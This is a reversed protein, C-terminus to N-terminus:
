FYPEGGDVRRCDSVRCNVLYVIGEPIRPQSRNVDAAAVCAVFFLCRALSKRPVVNTTIRVRDVFLVPRGHQDPALTYVFGKRLYEVDNTMAGDLKLPQFAKSPGFLEQRLTWYRLLRQVAAWPDYQESRLFERVNSESEVVEPCSSVAKLYAEKEPLPITSEITEHMIQVGREADRPSGSSCEAGYMDRRIQEREEPSLADQAAKEEIETLVPATFCFAAM